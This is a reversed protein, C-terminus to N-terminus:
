QIQLSANQAHRQENLADEAGVTAHDLRLASGCPIPRGHRDAAVLHIPLMLSVLAGLMAAVGVVAQSCRVVTVPGGIWGRRACGVDWFHPM